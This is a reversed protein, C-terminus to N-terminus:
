RNNNWHNILNETNPLLVDDYKDLQKDIDDSMKQLIMIKEVLMQQTKVLLNKRVQSTDKGAKALKFYDLINELSMGMDKLDQVLKIWRIFKEDYSRVGNGIRPVSPILGIKEYYRLTFKSVNTQEAIESIMM